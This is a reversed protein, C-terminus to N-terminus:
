SEKALTLLILAARADPLYGIIPHYLHRGPPFRAGANRAVGAPFYAVGPPWFCM